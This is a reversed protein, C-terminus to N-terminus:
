VCRSTYLLCSIYRDEAAVALLEDDNFGMKEKLKNNYDELYDYNVQTFEQRKYVDLHTYSVSKIYYECMAGGIAGSGGTVVATKGTLDINM